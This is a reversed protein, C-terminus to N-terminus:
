KLKKTYQQPSTTVEGFPMKAAIEMEQNAYKLRTFEHHVGCVAQFM